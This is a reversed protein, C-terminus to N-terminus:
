IPPSGAASLPLSSLPPPVRREDGALRVRAGASLGTTVSATATVSVALTGSAAGTGGTTAAEETARKRM